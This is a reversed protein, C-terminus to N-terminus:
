QSLQIFIMSQLMYFGMAMAMVLGLRQKQGAHQWRSIFLIALATMGIIGTITLVTWKQGFEGTLLGPGSVCFFFGAIVAYVPKFSFTLVEGKRTRIQM